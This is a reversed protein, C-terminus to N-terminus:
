QFTLTSVQCYWNGWVSPFIKKMEQGAITIGHLIRGRTVPIDVLGASVSPASVISLHANNAGAINEVGGVLHNRPDPGM